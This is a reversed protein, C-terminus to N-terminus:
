VGSVVVPAETDSTLLRPFDMKVVAGLLVEKLKKSVLFNQGQGQVGYRRVDLRVPTRRDLRLHRRQEALFRPPIEHGALMQVLFEIRVAFPTVRFRAHRVFFHHGGGLM